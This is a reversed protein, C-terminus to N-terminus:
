KKLEEMFVDMTKRFRECTFNNGALNYLNKRKEDLIDNKLGVDKLKDRIEGVTKGMICNRNNGVVDNFFKYFGGVPVGYSLAKILAYDYNLRFNYPFFLLKTDWLLEDTLDPSVDTWEDTILRPDPKGSLTLSYDNYLNKFINHFNKIYLNYAKRGHYSAFDGWLVVHHNNPIPKLPKKEMSIPIYYSPTFLQLNSNIRNMDSNSAFLIRDSFVCAKKEIKEVIRAFQNVLLNVGPLVTKGLRYYFMYRIQSCLFIKKINGFKSIYRFFCSSSYFIVDPSYKLVLANINEGLSADYKWEYFESVNFPFLKEMSDPVAVSKEILVTEINKEQSYQSINEGDTVALLVENDEKLYDLIQSQWYEGGCRERYPVRDLLCLIKM